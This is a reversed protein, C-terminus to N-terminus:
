CVQYEPQCFLHLLIEKVRIKGRLYDAFLEERLMSLHNFECTYINHCIIELDTVSNINLEFFDLDYDVRIKGKESSFNDEDGELSLLPMNLNYKEKNLLTRALVLRDHISNLDIWTKGSPWGSVNPPNLLLQGLRMQIKYLFSAKSFKLNLIRSLGALLEIPTKIKHGINEEAIFEKSLLIQKVLGGIHLGSERFSLSLSDLMSANIKSGVLYEYLKGTIFRSTQEKNILISLLDSGNFEGEHGLIKKIGQDHNIRKFIFKGDKRCTWGTLARSAETVDRESYNGEGLTFLELLERAFNENPHDKKNKRNNLYTLMSADKSVESLLTEFSGLAHTRIIHLYSASFRSSPINVPFHDHWFLAIKERLQEKGHAMHMLWRYNLDVKEQRNKQKKAKPGRALKQGEGPGKSAWSIPTYTESEKFLQEVVENYSSGAFSQINQQSPGFGARYLLHMIARQDTM